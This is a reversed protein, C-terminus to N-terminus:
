ALRGPHDRAPRPAIPARVHRGWAVFAALAGLALPVLARGPEGEVLHVPVALAMAVALGLAALPTLWPQVRTLAPLLVGLAGALEAVGIFRVLAPPVHSVWSMVPALRDIPATLKLLGTLAFVVFLVAQAVWLAVNLTRGGRSEALAGSAYTAM